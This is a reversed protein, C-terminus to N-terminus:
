DSNASRGTAARSRDLELVVPHRFLARLIIPMGFAAPLIWFAIAPLEKWLPLNKGNDVYFATLMVIYSLGMGTLHLRPWQRWRRRAATRGFCASAFSISGLAFLHSNEAWRMLSLASMTVFVGCLCWFYIIGFRSHRGRGKQAFMAGAGTIVAALGFLVHLAVVSLFVTDRSPIPIGLVITEGENAM